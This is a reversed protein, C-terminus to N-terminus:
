CPGASGPQDEPLAGRFADARPPASRERVACAAAVPYLFSPCAIHGSGSCLDKLDSISPVYPTARASCSAVTWASGTLNYLRLHRCSM